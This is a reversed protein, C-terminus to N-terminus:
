RVDIEASDTYKPDQSFPPDQNQPASAYARAREAERRQARHIELRCVAPVARRTVDASNWAEAAALKLPDTGAARRKLQRIVTLGVATWLPM